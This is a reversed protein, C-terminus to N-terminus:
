RVMSNIRFSCDGTVRLGIQSLSTPDDSRCDCSGVPLQFHAGHPYDQMCFKVERVSVTFGRLQFKDVPLHCDM